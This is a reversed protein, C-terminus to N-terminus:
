FGKYVAKIVGDDGVVVTCDGGIMCKTAAPVVHVEWGLEYRRFRFTATDIESDRLLLAKQCALKAVRKELWAHKPPFILREDVKHQLMQRNQSSDPFIGKSGDEGFVRFKYRGDRKLLLLASNPLEPPRTSHYFTVDIEVCRLQYDLNTLRYRAVGM